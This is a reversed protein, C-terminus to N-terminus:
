RRFARRRRATRASRATARRSHTSPRRSQPISPCLSRTRCRACSGTGRPRRIRRRRSRRRVRDRRLHLRHGVRGVLPTRLDLRTAQADALRRVDRRRQRHRRAETRSPARAAVCRRAGRHLGRSLRPAPERDVRQEEEGLFCRNQDTIGLLRAGILGIDRLNGRAEAIEDLQRTIEGCGFKCARCQGCSEVYLFRSVMRAVSVMSRTDDYVVFGASGLGGGVATLGEYSVPADLQAATLVPNSVGSLVAKVSRGAPVGGGVGDIVERLTTGPEIEAFGAHVVDGVVTCILPGPTESTGLTRYWEAGRTLILSVNALTEVNTVLTPNSGVPADADADITESGASWGEQPTTAYLGHLYPPLWRPM